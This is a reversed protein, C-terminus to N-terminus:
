IGTFRSHLPTNIRFGPLITIRDGATIIYDSNFPPSNFPSNEISNAAVIQNAAQITIRNKKQWDNGPFFSKTLILIPQCALIPDLGSHTLAEENSPALHPQLSTWSKHIWSYFFNADDDCNDEEHWNWSLVGIVEKSTVFLPSGSSGGEAYGTTWNVKVCSSLLPNVRFGESIKKVDGAPHHIGIGRDDSPLSSWARRNWGSFFVNYQAPIEERLRLIAIDPCGNFDADQVVIDMGNLTMLDNGNSTPSCTISQFNFFAKWNGFDDGSEVCHNATLIIPDFDNNTNNVVVGSCLFWGDNIKHRLLKVVSRIQNCWENAWPACIVNEHCNLSSGFDSRSKYVHIFKNVKLIGKNENQYSPRRNIEIIMQGDQISNSIFSSDTKNNDMSYAGLIRNTDNPSYLFMLSNPGLSFKDFILHLAKASPSVIKLRYVEVYEYGNSVIQLQCREWFDFNAIADVGYGLGCKTCTDREILEENNFYPLNIIPITNNPLHYYLAASYGCQPPQATSQFSLCSLAFLYFIRLIYENM